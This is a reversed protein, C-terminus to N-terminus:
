SLASQRSAEDSMAARSKIGKLLGKAAAKRKKVITLQGGAVFSEVEDGPQIGLERCQSVPLTIQRKASVKPM